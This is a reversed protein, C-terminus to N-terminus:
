AEAHTLYRENIVNVHHLTHGAIIWGAARASCPHGNASGSRLLAEQPLGDFLAVTSERVVLAERYLHEMSLGATDVERAWDDEEFGPLPTKDNRAFRLARYAMVRETDIMHRLVQKVTWKGPAYRHDVNLETLRRLLGDFKKWSERLAQMLDDTGCLDVYRQYFPALEEPGPKGIPNM